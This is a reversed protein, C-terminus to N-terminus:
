AATSQSSEQHNILRSLNIKYHITHSKIGTRMINNGVMALEGGAHTLGGNPSSIDEKAQM